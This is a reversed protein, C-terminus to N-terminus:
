EGYLEKEIDEILPAQRPAHINLQLYARELLERQRDITAEQKDGLAKLKEVLPLLLLENDM